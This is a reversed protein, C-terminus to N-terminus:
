DLLNTEVSHLSVVDVHRGSEWVIGFDATTDPGAGLDQDVDVDWFRHIGAYGEVSGV